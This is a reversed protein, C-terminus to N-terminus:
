RRGLIRLKLWQHLSFSHSCIGKPQHYLITTDIFSESASHIFRANLVDLCLGQTLFTTEVYVKFNVKSVLWFRFTHVQITHYMNGGHASGARTSFLLCLCLCPSEASVNILLKRGCIEFYQKLTSTFAGTCPRRM